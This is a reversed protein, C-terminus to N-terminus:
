AFFLKPGQLGWHGMLNKKVGNPTKKQRNEVALDFYKNKKNKNIKKKRVQFITLFSLNKLVLVKNKTIKLAFFFYYSAM